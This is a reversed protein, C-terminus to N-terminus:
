DEVWFEWACYFDDPHEDPPCALCRTKIRSDITQAFGSYETIGM